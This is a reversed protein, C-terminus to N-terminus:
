HTANKIAGKPYTLIFNNAKDIDYDVYREDLWAELTQRAARITPNGLAGAVRLAAEVNTDLGGGTMNNSGILLRAREANSFLFVKPHFTCARIEDFFVHTTIDARESELELLSGLGEYSTSSFDLGVTARICGAVALFNRASDKIEQRRSLQGV